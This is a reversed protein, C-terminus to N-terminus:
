HTLCGPLGQPRRPLGPLRSCISLSMLISVSCKSFFHPKMLFDHSGLDFCGGYTRECRPFSVSRLPRVSGLTPCSKSCGRREAAPRRQRIQPGRLCEGLDCHCQPYIGPVIRRPGEWLHGSRGSGLVFGFFLALTLWLAGRYSFSCMLGNCWRPPASGLSSPPVVCEAWRTARPTGPLDLAM